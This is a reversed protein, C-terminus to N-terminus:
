KRGYDASIEGWAPTNWYLVRPLDTQQHLWVLAAEVEQRLTQTEPDGLVTSKCARQRVWAMATRSDSYIPLDLQHQKLYRMAQVLALFEGLNNVHARFVGLDRAFVVQNSRNDLCRYQLRGSSGSRSSDVSFSQSLPKGASTGSPLRAPPKAAFRSTSPAGQQFAAEAQARTEFGKFRAGTFGKVQAEAEPWHSYIGPQRGRWVVYFKPM